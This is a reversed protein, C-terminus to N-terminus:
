FMILLGTAFKFSREELDWIKGDGEGVGEGM